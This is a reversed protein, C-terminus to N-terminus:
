FFPEGRSGLYALILVNLVLNISVSICTIQSVPEYSKTKTGSGDPGGDSIRSKYSDMEM